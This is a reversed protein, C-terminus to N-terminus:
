LHSLTSTRRELERNLVSQRAIEFEQLLASVHPQSQNLSIFLRSTDRPDIALEFPIEGFRLLEHRVRMENWGSCKEALSKVHLFFGYCMDNSALCDNILQRRIRSSLAAFRIRFDPSVYNRIPFIPSIGGGNGVPCNTDREPIHSVRLILGQVENESFTLTEGNSISCKALRVNDVVTQVVLEEDFELVPDLGMFEFSVLLPGKIRELCAWICNMLESWEAETRIQM